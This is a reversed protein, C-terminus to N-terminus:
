VSLTKGRKFTFVFPPETEFPSRFIWITKVKVIKQNLNDLKYFVIPLSLQTTLFFTLHLNFPPGGQAFRAKKSPSPPPAIKKINTHLPTVCEPDAWPLLVGSPLSLFFFGRITPRPISVSVPPFALGLVGGWSGGRSEAGHNRGM